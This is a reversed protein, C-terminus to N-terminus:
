DIPIAHGAEVWAAVVLRDTRSDFKGGGGDGRNTRARVDYGRDYGHGIWRAQGDAEGGPTIALRDIAESVLHVRALKSLM